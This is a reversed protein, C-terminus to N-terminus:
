KGKKAPVLPEFYAPWPNATFTKTGDIMVRSQRFFNMYGVRLSVVTEHLQKSVIKDYEVKLGQRTFRGTGGVDSHIIACSDGAGTMIPWIKDPIKIGGKVELNALPTGQMRKWFEELCAIDTLQAEEALINPAPFGLMTMRIAARLIDRYQIGKATDKVGIVAITDEIVKNNKDIGRDGNVIIDIFYLLEDIALAVGRQRLYVGLIDFPLDDVTEYPFNFQKGFKYVSVTKQGVTVQDKSFEVGMEVAETAGLMRSLPKTDIVPLTITAQTTDVSVSLLDNVDIHSRYGDTVISLIMESFMRVWSRDLGYFQSVRIAGINRVGGTEESHETLFEHIYKEFSYDDDVSYSSSGYEPYEIRLHERLTRSVGRERLEELERHLKEIQIQTQM